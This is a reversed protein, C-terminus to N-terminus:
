QWPHSWGTEPDYVAGGADTPCGSECQSSYAGTSGASTATGTVTYRNYVGPTSPDSETVVKEYSVSAPGIMNGNADTQSDVSFFPIAFRQYYPELPDTKKDVIIEFGYENHHNTVAGTSTASYGTTAPTLPKLPANYYRVTLHPGSTIDQTATQGIAATSSGASVTAGNQNNVAAPIQPDTATWGWDRGSCEDFTITGDLNTDTCATAPDIGGAYGCKAGLCQNDVTATSKTVDSTEYGPGAM